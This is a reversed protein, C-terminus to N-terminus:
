SCVFEETFLLTIPHTKIVGKLGFLMNGIKKKYQEPTLDGGYNKLFYWPPSPTIIVPGTHSPDTKKLLEKAMLGLLMFSNHYKANNECYELLYAKVCNVSCFVGETSYVDGKKTLPCGIPHNDIPLRCWWCSYKVGDVITTQVSRFNITRKTEDKDTWVVKNKSVITTNKPRQVTISSKPGTGCPTQHIPNRSLSPETKNNEQQIM